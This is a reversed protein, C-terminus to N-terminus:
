RSKGSEMGGGRQREAERARTCGYFERRCSCNSLWRPVCSRRSPRSAHKNPNNTARLSWISLTVSVFIRCRWPLTQKLPLLHLHKVYIHTSTLTGFNSTNDRRSVCRSSDDDDSEPTYHTPYLNLKVLQVPQCVSPAGRATIPIDKEADVIIVNNGPTRLFAAASSLTSLMAGSLLDALRASFSALLPLELSLKARGPKGGFCM